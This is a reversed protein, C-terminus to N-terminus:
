AYDHVVYYCNRSTLNRLRVPDLFPYLTTLQQDIQDVSITHDRYAQIALGYAANEIEICLNFLSEIEEVALYHYRKMFYEKQQFHTDSMEFKKMFDNINEEFTKLKRSTM